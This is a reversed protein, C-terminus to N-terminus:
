AQSLARDTGRHRQCRTWELVHPLYMVDGDDDPKEIGAAKFLRETQDLTAGNQADHLMPVARGDGARMDSLFTEFVDLLEICTM